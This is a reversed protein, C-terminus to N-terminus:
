SATFSITRSSLQQLLDEVNILIKALLTHVEHSRSEISGLRHLLLHAVLHV